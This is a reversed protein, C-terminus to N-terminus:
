QPLSSWRVNYNLGDKYVWNEKREVVDHETKHKEKASVRKDLMSKKKQRVKMRKAYEKYYHKVSRGLIDIEEPTPNAPTTDDLLARRQWKSKARDEANLAQTYETYAFEVDEDLKALM